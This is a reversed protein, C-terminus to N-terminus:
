TVIGKKGSVNLKGNIFYRVNGEALDGDQVRNFDQIWNLRSKALTGWFQDSNALSYRYLDAYTQLGPRGDFEPVPSTCSLHQHHHHNAGLLPETTITVAPTHNNLSAKSRYAKFKFFVRSHAQLAALLKAM